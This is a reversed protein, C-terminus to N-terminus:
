RGSLYEDASVPIGAADQASLVGASSSSLGAMNAPSRPLQSSWVGFLIIVAFIALILGIKKGHKTEFSGRTCTAEGSIAGRQAQANGLARSVAMLAEVAEDRSEFVAINQDDNQPTKFLLKHVNDAGKKDQAVELASSSAQDLDMQWVVPSLAHPFSLILKGGVVRASAKQAGVMSKIKTKMM